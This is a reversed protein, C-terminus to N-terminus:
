AKADVDITTTAEDANVSANTATGVKNGRREKVYDMGVQSLEAILLGVLAVDDIQGVIPFFDPSIDFPMVLYAVTGAVLWWRWKPHRITRRYWAYLAAPSFKM